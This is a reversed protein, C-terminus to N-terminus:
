RSRRRAERYAASAVGAGVVAIALPPLLLLFFTPDDLGGIRGRVTLAAAFGVVGCLFGWASAVGFYLLRIRRHSVAVKENREISQHRAEPVSYEGGQPISGAENKTEAIM